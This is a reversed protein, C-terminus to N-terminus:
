CSISANLGLEKWEEKCFWIRRLKDLFILQAVDATQGGFDGPVLAAEARGVKLSCYQGHDIGGVFECVGPPLLSVPPALWEEVQELGYLLVQSHLLCAEPYM